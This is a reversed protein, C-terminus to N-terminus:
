LNNYGMNVVFASLQSVTKVILFDDNQRRIGLKYQPSAKDTM